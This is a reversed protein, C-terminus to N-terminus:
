YLRDLHFLIQIVYIIVFNFYITFSVNKGLAFTTEPYRSTKGQGLEVVIPTLKDLSTFCPKTMGYFIGRSISRQNWYQLLHMPKFKYPYFQM